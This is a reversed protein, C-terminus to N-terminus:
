HKSSSKIVPFAEKNVRRMNNYFLVWVRKYRLKLKQEIVDSSNKNINIYLIHHNSFCFYIFIDFLLIM